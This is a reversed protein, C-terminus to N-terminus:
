RSGITGNLFIKSAATQIVPNEGKVYCPFIIINHNVPFGTQFVSTGRGCLIYVQEM